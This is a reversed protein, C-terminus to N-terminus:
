IKLLNAKLLDLYLTLLIFAVNVIVLNINFKTINYIWIKLVLLNINTIKGWPPKTAPLGNKDLLIQWSGKEQVLGKEFLKEDHEKFSKIIENSLVQASIGLSELLPVGSGLLISLTSAFRGTDVAILLGSIGPIRLLFEHWKLRYSKM